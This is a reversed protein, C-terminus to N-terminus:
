NSILNDVFCSLNEDLEFIGFDFDFYYIKGYNNSSEGVCIVNGGLTELFPFVNYEQLYPKFNEYVDKMEEINFLSEILIFDDPIEISLKPYKKVDVCLKVADSISITEGVKEIFRRREM